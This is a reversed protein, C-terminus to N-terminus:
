GHFYFTRSFRMIVDAGTIVAGRSFRDENPLASADYFLRFFFTSIAIRNRRRKRDLDADAHFHTRRRSQQGGTAGGIPMFHVNVLFLMDQYFVQTRGECEFSMLMMFLIAVFNRGRTYTRAISTFGRFRYTTIAGNSYEYRRFLRDLTFPDSFAFREM